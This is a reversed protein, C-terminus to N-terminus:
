GATEYVPLKEMQLLYPASADKDSLQPHQVGWNIGIEPDNWNITLEAAPDYYADCKYLVDARDSLVSFGHAFGRPIWLQHGNDESLEVAVHRGFTPSGRRVDVAVDRIQGTLVSVLKGQPNPNQLHLGRVVDRRSRSLNDQVFGLANLAVCYRDARFFESFFGRADGYRRPKLLLVGVLNTQTVNM